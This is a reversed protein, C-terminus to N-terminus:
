FPIKKKKILDPDNQVLDQTLEAIKGELEKLEEKKEALLARKGEITTPNQDVEKEDCSALLSLIILIYINKM